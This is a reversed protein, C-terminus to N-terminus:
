TTATLAVRLHGAAIADAIREFDPGTPRDEDLMAVRERVWAHVRRTGAGLRIDGRLDVAQAAVVLEVAALRTLRRVIDGTRYYTREATGNDAITVFKEANLASRQYGRTQFPTWVLLEGTGTGELAHGDERQM